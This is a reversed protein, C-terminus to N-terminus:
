IKRVGLGKLYFISINWLLAIRLMSRYVELAKDYNGEAAFRDADDVIYLPILQQWFCFLLAGLFMIIFDKEFQCCYLWLLFYNPKIYRM